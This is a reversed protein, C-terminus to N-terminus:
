KCKRMAKMAKEISVAEPSFMTYDEPWNMAASCDRFAEVDEATLIKMGLREHIKTDVILEKM